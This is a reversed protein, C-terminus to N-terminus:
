KMEVKTPKKQIFVWNKNVKIQNEKLTYNTKM